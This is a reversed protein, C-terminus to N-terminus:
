TRLLAATHQQPVARLNLWRTLKFILRRAKKTDDVTFV